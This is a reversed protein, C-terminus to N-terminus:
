NSESVMSNFAKLLDDRNNKNWKELLETLNIYWLYVNEFSHNGKRWRSYSKFGSNSLLRNDQKAYLHPVIFINYIEDENYFPANKVLEDHNAHLNEGYTIQKNIDSAGPKSTQYFKADLIYAKNNEIRLADIRLPFLNDDGASDSNWFAKPNYNGLNGINDLGWKVLKEFVSHYSKLGMRQIGEGENAGRIILLMSNLRNITDDNFTESLKTNITHIYLEKLSPKLERTKTPISSDNMGYFWSGYKLVSEYVCFLYIDDMISSVIERQKTIADLYHPKGNVITPTQCFTKKWDIKGNGNRMYKTEFDIYRGNRQYDSIMYSYAEIPYDTVDDKDNDTPLRGNIQDKSDALRFSRLFISLIRIAEKDKKCDLVHNNDNFISLTQPYYITIIENCYEFGVFDDKDNTKLIIKTSM